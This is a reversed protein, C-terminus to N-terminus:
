AQLRPGELFSTMTTSISVQTSGYSAAPGTTSSASAARSLVLVVVIVLAAVLVLGSSLVLASSLPDPKMLDERHM